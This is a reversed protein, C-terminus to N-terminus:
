VPIRCSLCNPLSSSKVMTHAHILDPVIDWHKEPGQYVKLDTLPIFGIEVPTQQMFHNYSACTFRNQYIELPLKENDPTSMFLTDNIDFIPAMDQNDENIPLDSVNPERLFCWSTNLHENIVHVDPNLGVCQTDLAQHKDLKSTTLAVKKHQLNKADVPPCYSRSQRYSM